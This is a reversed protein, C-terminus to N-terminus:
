IAHHCLHCKKSERGCYCHTKHKTNRKTHLSSCHVYTHSTAYLPGFKLTTESQARTGQVGGRRSAVLLDTSPCAINAQFADKM